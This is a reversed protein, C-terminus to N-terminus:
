LDIEVMEVTADPFNKQIEAIKSAPTEKVYETMAILCDKAMLRAEDMSEGFTVAGPIDPFFVNIYKSNEKDVKFVAPFSYKM